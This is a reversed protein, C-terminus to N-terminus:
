QNVGLQQHMIQIYFLKTQIPTKPHPTPRPRRVAFPSRRVTFPLRHVAFSIDAFSKSSIKCYLFM